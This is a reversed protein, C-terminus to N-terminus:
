KDVPLKTTSNAPNIALEFAGPAPGSPCAATGPASARRNLYERVADLRGAGLYKRIVFFPTSAAQSGDIIV